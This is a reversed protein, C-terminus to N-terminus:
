NKKIPQLINKVNEASVVPIIVPEVQKVVEINTTLVYNEKDLDPKSCLEGGKINDISVNLKTAYFQYYEEPYLWSYIINHFIFSDQYHWLISQKVKDQLLSYKGELILKFSSEYESLNFTYTSINDRELVEIKLQHHILYTHEFSRFESNTTDFTCILKNDYITYRKDWSLYVEILGKTKNRPINLLHYLFVTGKNFYETHLKGIKYKM